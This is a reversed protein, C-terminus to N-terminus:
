RFFAFNLLANFSKVRPRPRVPPPQIKQPGLDSWQLGTYLGRFRAAWPECRANTYPPALDGLESESPLDWLSRLIDHFHGFALLGRSLLVFRDLPSFRQFRNLRQSFEFHRHRGHQLRQDADLLRAKGGVVAPGCGGFRQAQVEGFDFELVLRLVSKEKSRRLAWEPAAGCGGCTPERPSDLVPARLAASAGFLMESASEIKLKQHQIQNQIQNEPHGM